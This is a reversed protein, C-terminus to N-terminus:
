ILMIGIMMGSQSSCCRPHCCIGSQQLASPSAVPADPSTATIATSFFASLLSLCVVTDLRCM